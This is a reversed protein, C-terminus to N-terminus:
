QYNYKYKEYYKYLKVKNINKKIKFVAITDITYIIDLFNLVCHYQPRNNYDHIIITVEKSCNLITQLTCAVRFRGDIFVLDYDYPFDKFVKSSYNPFLEKKDAEIPTGWSGVNGVDVYEFTLNQASNITNSTKLEEIWNYDSEVSVINECLGETVALITSGGSGFELYNKSKKLEKQLLEKEYNSLRISFQKEM